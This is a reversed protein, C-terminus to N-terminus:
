KIQAELAKELDTGRLNKAVIIGNGDVLVNTPISNVGYRLAAANSWGQLDSVHNPWILQDKDIAKEWAVANQDLSVSLIEFGKGNKFNLSHYKNYAAVVAPNEARCPGCWSAWFDVLVLKGKFSSLTIVNGKPSAQMIEPAKNGLNIGEVVDVTVQSVSASNGKTDTASASSMTDKKSKCSVVLYLITLLIISNLLKM